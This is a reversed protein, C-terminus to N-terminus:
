TFVLEIGLAVMADDEGAGRPEVKTVNLGTFYRCETLNKPSPVGQMCM